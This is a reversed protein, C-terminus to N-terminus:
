LQKKILQKTFQQGKSACLDFMDKNDIDSTIIIPLGYELKLYIMQTMGPKDYDYNIYIRKFRTFFYDIVEKTITQSESCPSTANFGLEYWVMVDKMSKTIILIDGTKPLQKFGQWDKVKTTSLWKWQKDKELPRYIKYRGNILYRFIPNSPSYSWLWKFGEGKNLWVEKVAKIDFFDLTAKTIGGQLWYALDSKSFDQLVVQIETDYKTFHSSVLVKSKNRISSNAEFDNFIRKIADKFSENHLEAVLQICNGGKGTSFCKWMLSDSLKFSFSHTSDSSFPSSYHKNQQPYYGLYRFYIQMEGIKEIKEKTTLTENEQVDKFSFM